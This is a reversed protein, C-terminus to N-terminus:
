KEFGEMVLAANMSWMFTLGRYKTSFLLFSVSYIGGNSSAPSVCASRGPSALGHTEICTDLSSNNEETVADLHNRIPSDTEVSTIDVSANTVIVNHMFDPLEEREPELQTSTELHLSIELVDNETKNDDVLSDNRSSPLATPQNQADDENAVEDSPRVDEESEYRITNRRTKRPNEEASFSDEDDTIGVDEFM